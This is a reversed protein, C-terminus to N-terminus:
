RALTFLRRQLFVSYSENQQAELGTRQLVAEAAQAAPAEVSVTQLREDGIVLLTFEAECDGLDFLTREKDVVVAALAPQEAAFAFLDAESFPPLGELEVDIGLAPAVRNEIDEAAVPFDSKFIPQWQELLRLRGILGKVELRQARIKVNSEVNLRTVIYTERSKPQAVGSGLATFADRASTLDRGFLRFEFRAVDQFKM